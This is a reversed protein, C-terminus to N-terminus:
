KASAVADARQVVPEEADWGLVRLPGCPGVGALDLFPAPLVVDIDDDEDGKSRDAMLGYTQDGAMEFGGTEDGHDDATGAVDDLLTSNGAEHEGIERQAVGAAWRAIQGSVVGGCGQGQVHDFM